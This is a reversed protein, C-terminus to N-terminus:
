AGSREVSGTWASFGGELNLLGEFGESALFECAAASRGGGACYILTTRAEGALESRREGSLRVDVVLPRADEEVLKRAEPTGVDRWLRGEAIMDPTVERGAVVAALLRPM